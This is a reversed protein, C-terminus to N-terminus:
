EEADHKQKWRRHSWMWLEPREIIMRELRRVYRGTIEHRAVEEQGDYLVEFRVSYCGRKVRRMCTFLIPMGYRMALQEPGDFFVTDQNLFRFWHPETRRPPSQDAIMGLALRKGEYGADRHHLYFRMSQQKPVPLSYVTTRLRRYFLEFVPNHLTRYISIAKVTPDYFPYFSGLEWCGYHAMVAIWDRGNIYSRVEDLNEITFHRRLKHPSPHTLNLTDIFMEALIHYFRRRIRHLEAESREPFSNRLNTLIVKRRYHLLHCLVFFLIPEFVYYKFWYPLVAFGRAFAWLLEAGIRQGVTLEVPPNNTTNM